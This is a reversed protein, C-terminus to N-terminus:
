RVSNYYQLLFDIIRTVLQKSYEDDSINELYLVGSSLFLKMIPTHQILTHCALLGVLKLTQLYSPPDSITAPSQNLTELTQQNFFKGLNNKKIQLELMYRLLQLKDM